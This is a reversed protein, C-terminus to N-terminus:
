SGGLAFGPRVSVTKLTHISRPPDIVSVYKGVRIERGEL